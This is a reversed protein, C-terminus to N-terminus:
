PEVWLPYKQMVKEFLTSALFFDLWVKLKGFPQSEFWSPEVRSFQRVFPFVAMDVLGPNKGSLFPKLKKELEYLFLVCKDRYNIEPDHAFRGPYKYRDLAEKFISDNLNITELEQASLSNGMAWTMIDLSQELIINSPLLLVPVTGKPSLKLLEQPKNKLSIERHEHAISAYFLAFRARM